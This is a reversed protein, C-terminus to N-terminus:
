PLDPDVTPVTVAGDTPDYLQGETPTVFATGVQFLVLGPMRLYLEYPHTPAAIGTFHLKRALDIERVEVQRASKGRPATQEERCTEELLLSAGEVSCQGEGRPVVM